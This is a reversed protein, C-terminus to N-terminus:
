LVAFKQGNDGFIGEIRYISCYRNQTDPYTKEIHSYLANWLAEGIEVAYRTFVKAGGEKLLDKLEKMM